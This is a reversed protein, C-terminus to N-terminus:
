EREREEYYDLESGHADHENPVPIQFTAKQPLPPAISPSQVNLSAHYNHPFTQPSTYQNQHIISTHPNKAYQNHPPLGTQHNANPPPLSAQLNTNQPPPPTQYSATPYHPNQTTLDIISPNHAPSSPPNQAQEVNPPPTQAPPRGDPQANVAFIPPPLDHKRQM